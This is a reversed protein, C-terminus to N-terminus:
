HFHSVDKGTLAHCPKAPGATLCLDHIWLINCRKSLDFLPLVGDLRVFGAMKQWHLKFQSLKRVSDRGRLQNETAFDARNSNVGRASLKSGSTQSKRLFVRTKQM